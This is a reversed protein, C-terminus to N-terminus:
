SCHSILDIINKKGEPYAICLEIMLDDVWQEIKDDSSLVVEEIGSSILICMYDELYGVIENISESYINDALFLYIVSSSRLAFHRFQDISIDDIGYSNLIESLTTLLIIALLLIEYRKQDTSKSSLVIANDADVFIDDIYKDCHDFLEKYDNRSLKAFVKNNINARSKFLKDTYYFSLPLSEDVVEVTNFMKSDLAYTYLSDENYITSNFEELLVHNTILEIIKNRKKGTQYLLIRKLDDVSVDQPIPEGYEESEIIFKEYDSLINDIIPDNNKSCEELLGIYTDNSNIILSIVSKKRENIVRM